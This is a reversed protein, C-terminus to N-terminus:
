AVGSPGAWNQVERAHRTAPRPWSLSASGSARALWRRLRMPQNLWPPISHTRTRMCTRMHKPGSMGEGGRAKAGGGPQPRMRLGGQYGMTQPRPGPQQESVRRPKLRAQPGARRPVQAGPCRPVRAGPKTTHQFYSM